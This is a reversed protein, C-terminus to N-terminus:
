FKTLSIRFNKFVQKGCYVIFVLIFNSGYLYKKKKKKKTHSILPEFDLEQTINASLLLTVISLPKYQLQKKAEMQYSYRLGCVVTLVQLAYCEFSPAISPFCFTQQSFPSLMMVILDIGPYFPFSIQAVAARHVASAPFSSLHVM